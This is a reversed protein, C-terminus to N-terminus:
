AAIQVEEWEPFDDTYDVWHSPGLKMEDDTLLCADLSKILSAGRSGDMGRGIFVLEQRRDGMDGEFDRLIDQRDAEEEPWLEDESAAWWKGGGEQVFSLGAQSWIGMHDHRSALWFFGKSRFVDHELETIVFNYLREPHFPRRRRYVMTSINYKTAESEHKDHHHHHHSSDHDGGCEDCRKAGENLAQVWGPMQGARDYDFLKTDLVSKLPASSMKTRIVLADPNLNKLLLEVQDAKDPTILDMKNLLIVNACEVQAVLLEAVTREDHEGSAMDRDQLADATRCESLFSKADVVTILADLVAIDELSDGDDTQYNFTEAVPFPDAIGTSEIVLNDFTGVAALQLCFDLLM